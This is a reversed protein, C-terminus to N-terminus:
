HYVKRLWAVFLRMKRRRAVIQVHNRVGHRCLVDTHCEPYPRRPNPAQIIIPPVNSTNKVDVLEIDEIRPM